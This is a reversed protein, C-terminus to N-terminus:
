QECVPNFDKVYSSFVKEAQYIDNVGYHVKLGMQIDFLKYKVVNFFGRTLRYIKYLICKIRLKKRNSSLEYAMEKITPHEYVFVKYVNEFDLKNIYETANYAKLATLASESWVAIASWIKPIRLDWQEVEKPDIIKQEELRSIQNKYKNADGGLHSSHGGIIIPADIYVYNDEELAVSVANAMDPSPGPSYSGCRKYIRELVDRRVIGNYLKPMYELTSIGSRLLKILSDKCSVIRYKMTYKSCLATSAINYYKPSKYSPWKYISYSSKLIKYDHEKMWRVCDLIYRTVGDDDGILCIYEGTCNHVALDCNGTMSIVGQNYFYRVFRYKNEDLYQQIEKNDDSNDQIVLEVEDTAFSDVVKILYKLYNYRNKTPVAISLLPREM